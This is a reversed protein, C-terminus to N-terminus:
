ARRSKPVYKAHDLKHRSGAGSRKPWEPFTM